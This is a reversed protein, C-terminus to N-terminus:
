AGHPAGPRPQAAGALVRAAVISTGVMVLFFVAPRRQAFLVVGEMIREVDLDDISSSLRDVHRAGGELREAAAVYGDQRLQQVGARLASSVVGLTGAVSRKNAELRHNVGQRILRSAGDFVTQVQSGRGARPRATETWGGGVDVQQDSAM